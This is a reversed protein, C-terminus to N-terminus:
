LQASDVPLVVHERSPANAMAQRGVLFLYGDDDIYGVDGTTTWTPQRPHQAYRTRDADNHYVFPLAEREFYVRGISGARLPVGDDGCVHLVGLCARGVSGPKRLWQESDIVTIGNGEISYYYDILVPGWWEIMSRKVDVPCHAATHVAARLSSVDYSGRKQASLQLLCTFMWPVWISHTIGYTEIAQLAEVPDFDPMVHVTGGLAHVTGALRLTAAHFLPTMSLHRADPGLHFLSGPAAALPDDAKDIQLDELPKKVTQPRGMTGASYLMDAGRPQDVLPVASVSALAAEYDECGTVAGGFVLRLVPPASDEIVGDALHHQRASVLLARAGCDDLIFAADEVSMDPGVATFYLGSRLAAWYAEFYRPSNASVLAITDGTRLGADRLVRALRISREDLQAYTLIEGSGVMVVAAHDPNLMAHTGPHM